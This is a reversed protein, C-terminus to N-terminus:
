PRCQPPHTELDPRMWIYPSPSRLCLSSNNVETVGSHPFFEEKSLHLSGVLLHHFTHSREEM